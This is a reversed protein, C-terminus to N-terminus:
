AGKISLLWEEYTGSFGSMEYIAYIEANRSMGTKQPGCGTVGGAVGLMAAMSLGLVVKSFKKM